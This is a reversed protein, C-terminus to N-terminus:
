NIFKKHSLEAFVKDLAVKEVNIQTLRWSKNISTEIITETINEVNEFRLRFDGKDPLEEVSIIGEINMLESPKPANKFSVIIANTDIQNNFEKITGSFVKVGNEIMYIHNCLVEVESLIHTSVLVTKEEGIKKILNRVEIIQNPDLGNTPEDLVIFKPDHVISQAIGVRQRYGGSLNKILRRSYHSIGCVHKAKDVAAPIEKEDMWKLRACHYLYEDVTLDLHLPAQQPLFGLHKKAELPQESLNIGDILLTGKSQRLTGCLINMFTSKGAGNSGVLGIVGKEKIKINLDKVAWQKGGNYSHSLNDVKIIYESNM